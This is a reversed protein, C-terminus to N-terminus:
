ALIASEKSLLIGRTSANELSQEFYKMANGFDGLSTYNRGLFHVADYELVMDNNERAISLALEYSVIAKNFDYINNYHWAM